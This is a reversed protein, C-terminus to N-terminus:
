VPKHEKAFQELKAGFYAVLPIYVTNPIDPLKSGIFSMPAATSVWQYASVIILFLRAILSRYGTIFRINWIYDLVKFITQM